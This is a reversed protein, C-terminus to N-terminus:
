SKYFFNENLPLEMEYKSNCTPCSFDVKPDIGWDGGSIEKMIRHMDQIPLKDMVKTIIYPDVNDNISVVFRWLNGAIMSEDGSLYIEDRIKPYRIVVKKKIVPLTFEHPDTRDEPLPTIKVNKLDFITDCKTNCDKCTATTEFDSGYTAERLKLLCYIKDFIYMDNVNVNNVCRDLLITLVDGGGTKAKAAVREDEYTMPRITIPKSPDKLTYFRNESPPLIPVEVEAPLFELIADIADDKLQKNGLNQQQETM